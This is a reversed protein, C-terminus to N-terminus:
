TEQTANPHERHYASMSMNLYGLYLGIFPAQWIPAPCIPALALGIWFGVCAPCYILATVLVSRKALLIRLPAFIASGCILYTIGLHVLGFVLLKFFENM